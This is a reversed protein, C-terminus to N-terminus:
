KNEMIEALSLLAMGLQKATETSLNVHAHTEDEFSRVMLLSDDHNCTGIEIRDNEYEDRNKDDFTGHKISDEVGTITIGM